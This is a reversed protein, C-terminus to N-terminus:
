LDETIRDYLAASYLGSPFSSIHGAALAKNRANDTKFFQPVFIQIVYVDHPRM